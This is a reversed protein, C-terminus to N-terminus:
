QGQYGCRGSPTTVPVQPDSQAAVLPHWHPYSEIVPGLRDVLDDFVRGSRARDTQELNRSVLYRRASEYGAHRADNARFPM